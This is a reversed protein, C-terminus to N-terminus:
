KSSFVVVVQVQAIQQYTTPTTVAFYYSVAVGCHGNEDTGTNKEERSIAVETAGEELLGAGGLGLTM